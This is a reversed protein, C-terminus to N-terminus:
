GADSQDGWHDWGSCAERAFLEIRNGNPYLEDIIERFKAPKSSHSDGRPVSVISRVQKQVDPTCSGRTNVLLFEHQISNYHGYNHRGKDWVFSAKYEFGWADIVAFADRLMPSTTWLFLVANKESVSRVKEGLACIESLPMTRYHREARGYADSDTVQGSDRYQWPPDAYFVRYRGTFPKPEVRKSKKETRAIIQSIRGPSVKFDSALRDVSEGAKRREVIEVHKERPITIRYDPKAKASKSNSFNEEWEAVARQSVGVKAAAQAQTHGQKRLELATAKRLDRKTRLQEHIHAIQEGSLQRRALNMALGIALGEEESVRLVQIPVEVDDPLYRHRHHGDIIRGDPFALVPMEITAHNRLSQKLLTTEEASLGPLIRQM